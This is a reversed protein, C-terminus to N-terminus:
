CFGINYMFNPNNTRSYLEQFLDGAREFDKAKFAKVAEEKTEEISREQAHVTPSVIALRIAVGLSLTVKNMLSFGM